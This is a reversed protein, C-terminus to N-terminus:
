EDGGEDDAIDGLYFVAVSAAIIGYVGWVRHHWDTAGGIYGFCYFMGALAAFVGLRAMFNTM